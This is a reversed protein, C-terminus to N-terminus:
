LPLRLASFSHVQTNLIDEICICLYFFLTVILKFDIYVCVKYLTFFLM